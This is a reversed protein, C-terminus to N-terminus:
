KFDRHCAKMRARLDRIEHHVVELQKNEVARKLNELHDQYEIMAEQWEPDAFRAMESSHKIFEELTAQDPYSGGAVAKELTKYEAAMRKKLAQFTDQWRTVEERDAPDYDGLTSWRWKLKTEIRGKEEKHKIKADISQPISWQRGDAEVTGSRLEGAIKELYDALELRDFPKEIKNKM